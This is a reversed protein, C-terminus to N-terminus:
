HQHEDPAPQPSRQQNQQRERQANATDPPVIGNLRLYVVFNGYHDMQDEFAVLAAEIRTMRESRMGTVRDMANQDNLDALISDGYDYAEELAKLLEDRTKLNHYKASLKESEE